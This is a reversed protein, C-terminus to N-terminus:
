FVKGMSFAAGGLSTDDSTPEMSSSTDNPYFDPQGSGADSPSADPLTITGDIIGTILMEANAQLARAYEPVAEEDESYSKAYLWSTYLKAIATRVLSPTSAVDTWTSVDYASSIRALVEDEIQDLLNADLSGVTFKTTRVWGQAHQVTIRSM